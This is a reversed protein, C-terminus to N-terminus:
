FPHGGALGSVWGPFRAEAKMRFESFQPRFLTLSVTFIQFLTVRRLPSSEPCCIGLGLGLTPPQPLALLDKLTQFEGCVRTRGVRGEGM